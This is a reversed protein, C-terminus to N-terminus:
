LININRKKGCVYIKITKLFVLNAVKSFYICQIKLLIIAVSHNSLGCMLLLQRRHHYPKEASIGMLSLFMLM